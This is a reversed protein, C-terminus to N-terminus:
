VFLGQDEELKRVSEAYNREDLEIAVASRGVNRAARVLSGSGGFPDVIFDGPETSFKILRELLPEPKEHPHILKGAPIPPQTIIANTRKTQREKRGKKLFLIIEYGRGWSNLDGLGPVGGKDWILMEKFTFGHRSLRRAVHLWEALVESATFIYMDCDDATSPLLSDMVSDFIEIAKEPSDDNAIKRAYSKGEATESRNSLNDVGFPPDTIVCDIRGPKFRKSLEIADGHWIQHYLKAM